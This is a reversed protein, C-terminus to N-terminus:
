FDHRCAEIFLTPNDSKVLAEGILVADFGAQRYQQAIAANTIGSAAVKIIHNPIYQILQLSRETNVEFTKLHRNNIAIIEAGSDIALELEDHDIVEVLVDIGLARANDLIMKTKKGLVAVICLIANAGAVISESIQIVDLIFDKRLVPINTKRLTNAVQILDNLNGNFFKEETLVSIANAKASVYSKALAVPDTIPALLGHSPSQRKIEAIVALTSRQLAPKFKKSITSTIEGRHIKAIDHEPMAKLLHYLAAIERQKQIIIPKLRNIM